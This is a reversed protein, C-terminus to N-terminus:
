GRATAGFLTKCNESLEALRQVLAPAGDAVAGPAERRPRHAERERVLKKGGKAIAVIADCEDAPVFRPIAFVPPDVNLVRVDSAAYSLNVPLFREALSGLYAQQNQPSQTAPDLGGDGLSGHPPAQLHHLVGAAGQADEGPSPLAM